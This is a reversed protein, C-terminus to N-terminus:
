LGYIGMKKTKRKPNSARQLGSLGRVAVGGLMATTAIPVFGAATRLSGTVSPAGPATAGVGSLVAGGVGIGVGVKVVGRSTGYVEDILSKKRKVM